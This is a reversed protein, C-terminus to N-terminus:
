VGEIRNYNNDILKLTEAKKVKRSFRRPFLKLPFIIANVGNCPKNCSTVVLSQIPKTKSVRMPSM